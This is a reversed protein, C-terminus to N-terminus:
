VIPPRFISETQEENFKNTNSHYHIFKVELSLSESSISNLSLNNFCHCLFTCDNHNEENPLEGSCCNHEISDTQVLEYLEQCPIFTSLVAFILLIKVAFKM